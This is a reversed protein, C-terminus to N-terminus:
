IVGRRLTINASIAFNKLKKDMNDAKGTSISNISKALEISIM